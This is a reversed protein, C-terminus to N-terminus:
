QARPAAHGRRRVPEAKEDAYGFAALAANIQDIIDVPLAPLEDPKVADLGETGSWRYPANTDPHIQRPIVTQRGPGILECIMEGEILWRKSTTVHPAFYCLTEGRRGIKTGRQEPLIADLATRIAIDDTDIDLAVIAAM